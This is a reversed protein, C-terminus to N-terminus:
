VPCGGSEGAEESRVGGLPGDGGEWCLGKAQARCLERAMWVQQSPAQSKAM